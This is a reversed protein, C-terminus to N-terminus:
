GVGKYNLIPRLEHLVEALDSQDDMVVKIDKYAAPIEDLLARAHARQWVISGMAAGFDEPTHAKRARRRSLRRGAGHASTRYSLPEGKGRVIYCGTGMSGAVVGLDGAEARIAGKRTIWVERGGHRELDAYNHHCDIREVERGRAAHALLERVAADMIAARNAKAYDQAWLMDSVYRDFEPTARQFYALDPDELPIGEASALRKALKIHADALQNGIGRSGSHLVVWARDREDLDVELFHNGSGLTGLQVLIKAEQKSTLTSPPPHERLWARAADSPKGHWKGLGAPVTRELRGLLPELSDTLSSADLDTRAATMGCGIDVGVAAPIIAGSTAIVAGITAGLGLHADPMLAVHGDVIPLRSLRRAQEVTVEDIESAWSLLKPGLRKPPM